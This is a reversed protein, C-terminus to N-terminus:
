SHGVGAAFVVAMLTGQSWCIDFFSQCGPYSQLHRFTIGAALSGLKVSSYNTVISTGQTVLKKFASNVARELKDCDKQPTCVGPCYGTGPEPITSFSIKPISTARESNKPM